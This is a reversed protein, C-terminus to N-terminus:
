PKIEKVFRATMICDEVDYDLIFIECMEKTETFQIIGKVYPSIADEKLDFVVDFRKHSFEDIEILGIKLKMTSDAADLLDELTGDNVFSALHNGIDTPFDVSISTNTWRSMTTYRHANVEIISTLYTESM